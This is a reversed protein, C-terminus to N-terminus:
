SWDVSGPGHQREYAEWFAAGREKSAREADKFSADLQKDRRESRERAKRDGRSESRPPQAGKPYQPTFPNRM